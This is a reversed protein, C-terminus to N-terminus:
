QWPTLNSMGVHNADIPQGHVVRNKIERLRQTDTPNLLEGDRKKALLLKFTDLLIPTLNVIGPHSEDVRVGNLLIEQLANLSKNM